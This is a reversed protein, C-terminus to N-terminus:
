SLISLWTHALTFFFFVFIVHFLLPQHVRANRQRYKPDRIAAELSIGPSVDRVKDPDPPPSTSASSRSSHPALLLSIFSSSSFTRCLPHAINLPLIQRHLLLLPVPCVCSVYIFICIYLFVHSIRYLFLSFSLIIAHANSITALPLGRPKHEAGPEQKLYAVAHTRKHSYM